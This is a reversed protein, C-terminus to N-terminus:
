IYVGQKIIKYIEYAQNASEAIDDIRIIDAMIFTRNDQKYNSITGNVELRMSNYTLFQKFAAIEDDTATYIEIFPWLKHNYTLPTVKNITDPLAKINGLQYQYNDIAMSRQEALQESLFKEDYAAGIASAGTGLIGGAIATGISGGALGGATAGTIGGKIIGLGGTIAQQKRAIEANFDLNRIQRDFIM